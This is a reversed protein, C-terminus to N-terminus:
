AGFRLRDSRPSHAAFLVGLCVLLLVSYEVGNRGAGVVFWGSSAHVTGIGVALILAFGPTVWRVFRGVLLLISAVMEFITVSWACLTGPLGLTDLWGAFPAVGGVFCRYYGHIGLLIAVAIRLAIIPASPSSRDLASNMAAM